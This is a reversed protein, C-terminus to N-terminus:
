WGTRNIINSSDNTNTNNNDETDFCLQWHQRQKHRGNVLTRRVSSFLWIISDFVTGLLITDAPCRIIKTTITISHTHIHTHKVKQKHIQNGEVDLYGFALYDFFLWGDM